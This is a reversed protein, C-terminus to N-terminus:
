TTPASPTAPPATSQSVAGFALLAPACKHNPGADAPIAPLNQIRAQSGTTSVTGKASAPQGANNLSQVILPLLATSAETSAMAGSAVPPLEPEPLPPLPPEDPDPPLEDDPPEDPEVPREPPEDAPPEGDPPEPAEDDPPEDPPTDAPPEDPEPPASPEGDVPPADPVPPVTAHVGTVCLLPVPCVQCSQTGSPVCSAMCTTFAHLAQVAALPPPM